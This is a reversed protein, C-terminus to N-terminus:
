LKSNDLFLSKKEKQLQPHHIEAFLISIFITNVTKSHNKKTRDILDPLSVEFEFLTFKGLFSSLYHNPSPLTFDHMTSLDIMDFNM